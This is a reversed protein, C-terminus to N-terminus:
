DCGGGGGGGGDSGGCSSSSSSDGGSSSSSSSSSSSDGGYSSGSSSSGSGFGLGSGYSSHRSSDEYSPTPDPATFAAAGLMASTNSSSTYDDADPVDIEPRSRAASGGRKTVPKVPTPTHAGEYASHRPSAARNPASASTRGSVTPNSFGGDTAPARTRARAEDERQRKRARSLGYLLAALGAAAVAALWGWPVDSRDESTTTTRTQVAQTTPAATAANALVATPTLAAAAVTLLLISRRM